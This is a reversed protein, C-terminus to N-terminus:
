EVRWLGYTLFWVLNVYGAALVDDATIGWGGPLRQSERVPPPKLIDFVRFLVMIGVTIGWTGAGFFYDPTPLTGKRFYVTAVWSLFCFPVAAIEDLVVSGPDPECLVREAIECLFVSAIVGSVAFVCYLRFDRTCLLSLFWILGVVSGFTGPAIPIRGVGFGQAVWLCFSRREKDEEPPQKRV